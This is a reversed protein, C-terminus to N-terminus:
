GGSDTSFRRTQALYKEAKEIGAREADARTAGESRAIRAGPDAAEVTCYYRDGIRYSTINITWGHVTDQRRQYEEANM